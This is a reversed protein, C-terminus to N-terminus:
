RKIRKSIMGPFHCFLSLVPDINWASQLGNFVAKVVEGAHSFRKLSSSILHLIQQRVEIDEADYAALLILGLGAYVKVSSPSMAYMSAEAMPAAALLIARSWELHNQTRAWEFDAVLIAAAVGAIAQLRTVNYIDEKNTDTFDEATRLDKAAAVAAELTM